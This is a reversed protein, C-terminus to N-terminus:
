WGRGGGPAGGQQDQGGGKVESEMEFQNAKQKFMKWDIQPVYQELLHYPDVPINLNRFIGAINGVSNLTSEILQLILVVPPTLSVTVYKTPDYDLGMVKTIKFILENICSVDNQQQDAIDVAFTQNIHALQEALQVTDQMGLYPGPVGSLSVLEQRLDRLDDVRVNPDGAPQIQFDVPIRGNHSIAFVDRFDSLVKSMSKFSGLDNLTVRTNYIERKLKNLAAGTMKTPGTDITWKRVLASRSLKTITNSLQALIYLKGPLIMPDIISASFPTYSASSANSFHVMKSPPIFRIQLPSMGSKKQELGQEVVMRKIFNFVEPDLSNLLNNVDNDAHKKNQSKSLVKSIVFRILKETQAMANAQNSNAMSTVKQVMSAVSTAISESQKKHVELYGIRIGYKTELIIINHPLHYKLLVKSFHDTQHDKTISSTESEILLNSYDPDISVYEFLHNSMKDLHDDTLDNFSINEQILNNTSGSSLNAFSTPGSTLSNWNVNKAQKEIDVVEIFYDGYRLRNPIINKKLRSIISFKEMIDKIIKTSDSIKSEDLDKNDTNERYIVVKNNVPNKALINAIYVSIVRKILPISNYIEDYTNYRGLRDSPVSVDAFLNSIDFQKNSTNSEDDSVLGLFDGTLEDLTKQNKLEEANSLSLTNVKTILTDIRQDIDSLDPNGLFHNLLSM